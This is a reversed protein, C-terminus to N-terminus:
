ILRKILAGIDDLALMETAIDAQYVAGPMGWVVSSEKDQIFIQGGKKHLNQCATLGDDGMGTLIISAVSGNYISILSDLSANVAPRVYCIKEDQGLKVIYKGNKEVFRMHYNGPAVLCVGAELFDGEKAERVEMPTLKSLTEALQKTFMPPMHQVLVLPINPVTDLKRFIKVLAAPGGTSSGICLLRPKRISAIANSIKSLKINLADLAPNKEEFLAKVQRVLTNKIISFADNLDNGHPKTVFDDAGANLGEMTKDAGRLTLSSFLIIKVDKNFKRIEITAEIGDLEPMEIDMTVLDVKNKKLYEVAEKGDSVKAAVEMGEQETFVKAIVSRYLLSDDVVLIKM